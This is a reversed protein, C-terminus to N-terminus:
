KQKYKVYIFYKKIINLINENNQININKRLKYCLLNKANRFRFYLISFAKIPAYNYDM